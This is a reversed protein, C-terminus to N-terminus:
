ASGGASASEPQAVAHGGAARASGGVADPIGFVFLMNVLTVVALGAFALQLGQAPTAARSAVLVVVASGLTGGLLRFMGRLGTIAAIRDPALEIAANNSAPGGIGFALGSLAVLASLYVFNSLHLGLVTPEHLGRSLILLVLAMLAFGVWIPKRYGLRPLMMASASSALIMTIARPTLLAGSATESFGYGTQAYLPIFSFLGFVMVGYFFNLTNMFAFERRRLLQLDLIPDRARMEQRIFAVGSVIGIVVSLAVVSFNPGSANGLETLAYVVGLVSLAMLAVGPMDIRTGGKAEGPRLLFMAAVVIVAVLPLNMAFTWRWGFHEVLVGGINPGLLSGIPFVSSTLGIAQPRNNAFEDGIVGYVSPLLSGGALGQVLRAGILVGINPALACVASAIGFIAVGGVFVRRRGLEDSLKGAIPYAVSQSLTFITVVWGVWRLPAHLGDVMDPLAVSVMSGQMSSNLLALCVVLFIIHRRKM